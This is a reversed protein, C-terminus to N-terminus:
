PSWRCQALSVRDGKFIVGEDILRARQERYGPSGAPLSIRGQSNVVRHWPLQSGPPLQRLVNGVLRAAGPLGALSAVQGYSAVSGKPIQNVVQWIRERNNRVPDDLDPDHNM